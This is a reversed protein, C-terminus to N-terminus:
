ATTEAEQTDNKDKKGNFRYFTGSLSGLTFEKKGGDKSLLANMGDLTDLTMDGCGLYKDDKRYLKCYLVSAGTQNTVHDVLSTKTQNYDTADTLGNVTFFVRYYSFKVRYDSSENRLKRSAKVANGVTDFTLFFSSSAKTESKHQLGELSDFSSGTLATGSVSKVLLTRGAKRVAKKSQEQTQTQETQVPVPKTETQKVPAKEVKSTKAVKTTKTESVNNAETNKTQKTTKSPM